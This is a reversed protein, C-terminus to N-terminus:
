SRRGRSRPFTRALNDHLTWAPKTLELWTCSRGPMELQFEFASRSDKFVKAYPETNPKRARMDSVTMLFAPESTGADFAGSMTTEWVRKPDFLKMRDLRMIRRHEKEFPSRIERLIKVVFGQPWEHELLRLGALLAFAEYESYTIEIGSGEGPSSFFAFGTMAPAGARGTLPTKRDLDLLRKTSAQFAPSPLGASDDMTQYVAEEIQNRKFNMSTTNYTKYEL